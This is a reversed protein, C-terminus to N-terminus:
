GRHYGGFPREFKLELNCSFLDRVRMVVKVVAPHLFPKTIALTDQSNHSPAVLAVCAAVCIKAGAFAPGKAFLTVFGFM